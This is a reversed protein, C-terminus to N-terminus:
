TAQLFRERHKLFFEVTERLGEELRTGAVWGTLEHFRRSCGCYDGVDISLRDPPFPVLELRVDIIRGLVSVFERLGCPEPHSLNYVGGWGSQQQGAMLLAQVVDAVCTFDRLQDGTGFLTIVDGRLAQALCVNIFGRGASKLDMRPGYTNTLRLSISRIGHVERYLRFFHEAAMKSVGNVDVPRLPHQENVPQTLPRGYVQRTSTFVLRVDPNSRRCIELLQLQARCNTDLDLLPDTMSNPHSVQGAVCFIVEHGPVIRSMSDADRIDADHLVIRDAVSDINRINGGHQGASRDIVTVHAGQRVLEIVLNSGIFGLGGTVLVTCGSWAEPM